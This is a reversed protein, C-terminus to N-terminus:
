TNYEKRPLFMHYVAITLCVIGGHLRVANSWINLWLYDITLIGAAYLTAIVTFCVVHICWFGIGWLQYSRAKQAAYFSVAASISFLTM